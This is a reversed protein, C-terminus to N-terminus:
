LRVRVLAVVRASYADGFGSQATDYYRLEASVKAHLSQVLGVNFSTYDPAGVRERRGANASISTKDRLKLSLGGELYDSRRTGGLDDPSHVLSAKASFPGLKRGLSVTLELADRDGGGIGGVNWKYVAAAGVDFGLLKRKFGASVAAEGDATPSSVNKVQGSLSFGALGLEVRILGQAHDTQALGKSMGRSAGVIELGPDVPPLDIM